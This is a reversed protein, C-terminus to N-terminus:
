RAGSTMASQTVRDLRVNERAICSKCGLFSAEKTQGYGNRDYIAEDRVKEAPELGGGGGM